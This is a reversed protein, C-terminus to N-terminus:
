KEKTYPQSPPNFVQKGVETGEWLVTDSIRFEDILAGATEKGGLMCGVYIRDTVEKGLAVKEGALRASLVGDVFVQVVKAEGDWTMAVHHWTNPEWTLPPGGVYDPGKAPGNNENYIAVTLSAQTTYKFLLLGSKQFTSPGHINVLPAYREEGPAWKPKVWMEVTGKLPQYHDLAEYYLSWPWEGSYSADLAGGWKGEPSIKIEGKVSADPNAAVEPKVGEDFHALFLTKANLQSCLVLNFLCFTIWQSKM